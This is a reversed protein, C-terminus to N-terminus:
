HRHLYTMLQNVLEANKQALGKWFSAEKKANALERRLTEIDM